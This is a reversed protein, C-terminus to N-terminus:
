AQELTNARCRKPIQSPGPPTTIRKLKFTSSQAKKSIREVERGLGGSPPAALVSTM